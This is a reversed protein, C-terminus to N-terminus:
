LPLDSWINDIETKTYGFKDAAEQFIVDTYKDGCYKGELKDYYDYRDYIWNKIEQRKEDTIKNLSEEKNSKGSIWAEKSGFVKIGFSIIEDKMVGNYNPSINKMSDIVKEPENVSQYFLANYYFYMASIEEDDKNKKWEDELEKGFGTGHESTFWLCYADPPLPM